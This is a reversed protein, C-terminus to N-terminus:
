YALGIRCGTARLPPPCEDVEQNFTTLDDGTPGGARLGRFCKVSTAPIATVNLMCCLLLLDCHYVDNLTSVNM